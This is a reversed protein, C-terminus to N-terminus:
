PSNARQRLEELALRVFARAVGAYAAERRCFSKLRKRHRALRKDLVTAKVPNTECALDELAEMYSLMAGQVYKLQTTRARFLELRDLGFIEISTRGRIDEAGNKIAASVHVTLIDAEWVPHRKDWDFIWRLYQSPNTESPNILLADEACVNNHEEFARKTPDALPFRCGKGRHNQPEDCLAKQMEAATMGPWSLSQFRYQNCAPCSILLNEWTAALWWYGVHLPEETVQGKPRYHEIDRSDTANYPSECYACKGAFLRNLEVCVDHEKYRKFEYASTPAPVQSYYKRAADIETSASKGRGVKKQLAALVKKTPVANKYIFIM